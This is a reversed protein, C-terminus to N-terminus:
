RVWYAPLGPKTDILIERIARCKANTLFLLDPTAEAGTLINWLRQYVYDKMAGPLGDFQPSYILYSLPYTFLRSELDLERLSRGQSDRPGLASFAEAFGSTGQIPSKLEEEHAFIMYDVLADGASKIIRQSSESLEDPARDFIKDMVAQRHLAMRTEFNAQTMLNHMHAQHELVLMAVIDSHPTLYDATNVRPPLTPQNAGAEVDIIADYPTETAIQNGRHRANGHTGTIYWGGWREEMPTTHDTLASGAKMIPQGDQAPFVSRVIHGPINRTMSGGHCQLCEHRQRVIEPRSGAGPALTYFVTGLKPDAASIEVVDSHQVSGIYVDDNFYIARPAAPSINNIQLSTKSFVLVQSSEPVGLLKLLPRLYGHEDQALTASGTEIETRLREIPNDPATESYSIPPAEFADQALAARPAVCALLILNRLLTNM